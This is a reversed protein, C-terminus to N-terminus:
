VVSSHDGDHEREVFVYHHDGDEGHVVKHTELCPVYGHQEHTHLEQNFHAEGHGHILVHENM